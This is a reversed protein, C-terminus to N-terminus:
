YFLIIITIIIQADVYSILELESAKHNVSSIVAYMHLMFHIIITDFIIQCPTNYLLILLIIWEVKLLM